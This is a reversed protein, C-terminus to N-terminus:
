RALEDVGVIANGEVRWRALRAPDRQLERFREGDVRRRFVLDRVGAAGCSSIKMLGKEVRPRALLREFGTDERASGRRRMALFAYPLSRLDIGLRRGFLAWARETFVEPPPEAFFHCWDRERGGALVGCAARHTCPAIPDFREILRARIESLARSEERAGPEVWVFCQARDLLAVLDDLAARELENLVHSVLVLEFAGSVSAASREVLLPSLEREARQAAFDLALNSCDHLALKEVQGTGFAALWTRSAVGSGAGWDLLAGRPPTFGRASLEDIVARWKWAIRRAFTVDYLEVDSISRWYRGGARDRALFADRLQELRAWDIADADFVDMGDAAIIPESRAAAPRLM